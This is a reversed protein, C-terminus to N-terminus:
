KKIINIKEMHFYWKFDKSTIRLEKSLMNCTILNIQHTITNMKCIIIIMPEKSLM